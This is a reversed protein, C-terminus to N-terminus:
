ALVPRLIPSTPPILRRSAFDSILRDLVEVPIKGSAWHIRAALAALFVSRTVDFGFLPSGFCVSSMDQERIRFGITTEELVTKDFDICLDGFPLAIRMFNIEKAVAAGVCFPWAAYWEALEKGANATVSFQRERLEPFDHLKQGFFEDLSSLFGMQDSGHRAYVYSQPEDRQFYTDSYLVVKGHLDQNHPSISIVRRHLRAPLSQELIEAEAVLFRFGNVRLDEYTTQSVAVIRHLM